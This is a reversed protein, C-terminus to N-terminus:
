RVAVYRTEQTIKGFRSQTSFHLINLGALLEIEQDFVGNRNMIIERGNVTLQSEKETTGRVRIHPIDVVANNEPEDIRLIPATTFGILQSTFFWAFLFLGVGGMMMIARRPTLYWYHRKSQPIVTNAYMSRKEQWEKKLANIFADGELISFREIIRRLCGAAYVYAPFIEYNGEEFAIIMRPHVMLRSAIDEISLKSSSRWACFYQSLTTDEDVFFDTNKENM